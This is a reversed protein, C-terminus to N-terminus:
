EPYVTIHDTGEKIVKIWSEAMDPYYTKLCKACVMASVKGVDPVDTFNLKYFRNRRQRKNCVCCKNM